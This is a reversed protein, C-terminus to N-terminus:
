SLLPLVSYRSILASFKSLDSLDKECAMRQIEFVFRLGELAPAVKTWLVLICLDKFVM